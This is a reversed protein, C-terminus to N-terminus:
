SSGLFGFVSKQIFFKQLIFIARFISPIGCRLLFEKAKIYFLANCGFCLIGGAAKLNHDSDYFYCNIKQYLVNSQTICHLFTIWFCLTIYISTTIVLLHILCTFFKTNANVLIQGSLVVSNKICFLWRGITTQGHFPM